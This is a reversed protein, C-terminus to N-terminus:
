LRNDLRSKLAWFSSFTHRGGSFVPSGIHAKLEIGGQAILHKQLTFDVDKRYGLLWLGNWPGVPNILLLLIGLVRKGERRAQRGAAM